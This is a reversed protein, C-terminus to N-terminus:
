ALNAVAKKFADLEDCLHDGLRRLDPVYERCAHLGVSFNEGYTWATMNLGLVRTVPGM